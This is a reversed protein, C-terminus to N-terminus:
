RLQRARIRISLVRNGFTGERDNIKPLQLEVIEEPKVRITSEVPRGGGSPNESDSAKGWRSRTEISVDVAGTDPRAIIRGFVDLFAGGDVIRDFYFPIARHPLGRVSLAQSHEEGTSFREVLWLDAIVLRREFEESPYDVGVRLSAATVACPSGTFAKAGPPVPVTDLPRSQGPRLTLEVDENAANFTKGADLTRVWRLRFTVADGVLRTPTVEVKWGTTANEIFGRGPGSVLFYACDKSSFQSLTTKGILIPGTSSGVTPKEGGDNNVGYGRVWVSLDAATQSQAMRVAVFQLLFLCCIRRKM